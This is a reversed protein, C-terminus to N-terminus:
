RGTESQIHWHIGTDAQILGYQHISTHRHTRVIGGADSDTHPHIGSTHQRGTYTHTQIHKSARHTETHIAPDTETYTHRCTHIGSRRAAQRQGERPNSVAYINQEQIYTNSATHTYAHTRKCTHTTCNAAPIGTHIYAQMPTHTAHICIATHM